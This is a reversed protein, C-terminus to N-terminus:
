PIFGSPTIATKVGNLEHGDIAAVYWGELSSLAKNRKLQHAIDCLLRRLPQSDM